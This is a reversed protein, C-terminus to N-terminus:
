SPLRLQLDWISDTPDNYHGKVQWTQGEILVEDNMKPDFTIEQAKIILRRDTAFVTQNDIEEAEFNLLFGTVTYQTDNDTPGVGPTYGPDTVIYTVQRPINGFASFITETVTQFTERLGM